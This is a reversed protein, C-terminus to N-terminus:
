APTSVAPAGLPRDRLVEDAAERGCGDGPPPLGAHGPTPRDERRLASKRRGSKPQCVFIKARSESLSLGQPTFPGVVQIGDRIIPMGNVRGTGFGGTPDNSLAWSREIFTARSPTRAPRSTRRSALCRPSSTLRGKPGDRDALPSIRMDASKAALWKWAM